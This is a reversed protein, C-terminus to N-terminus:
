IWGAEIARLVALMRDDVEMKGLISSVQNKITGEAVRLAAAIQRNTLGSAVLRLVVMERESLRTHPNSMDEARRRALAERVGQTLKPQFWRAGSAIARIAAVLEELSVDKSLFGHAGHRAADLLLESDNFTTLVLCAPATERTQLRKLLDLGDMRPMRIDILAVDVARSDLFALAEVGNAAAGMVEIDNALALLSRFGERILREDDVILVSRKAVSGEERRTPSRM